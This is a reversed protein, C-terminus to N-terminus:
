RQHCRLGIGITQHFEVTSPLSPDTSVSTKVYRDNPADLVAAEKQKGKCRWVSQGPWPHPFPHCGPLSKRQIRQLRNSIMSRGHKIRRTLHKTWVAWPSSSILVVLPSECVRPLLLVYLSCKGFCSCSSGFPYRHHHPTASCACPMICHVPSSNTMIM